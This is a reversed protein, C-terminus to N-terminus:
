LSVAPSRSSFATAHDPNEGRDQTREHQGARGGGVADHAPARVAMALKAAAVSAGEARQGHGDLPQAPDLLDDGGVFGAKGKEFVPGDARPAAVCKTLQTVARVVFFKIRYRDLHQALDRLDGSAAAM